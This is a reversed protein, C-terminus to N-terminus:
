REIEALGSANLPPSRMANRLQSALIPRGTSTMANRTAMRPFTIWTPNRKVTFGIVGSKERITGRNPRHSWRENTEGSARNLRAFDTTFIATMTTMAYRFMRASIGRRVRRAIDGKEQPTVRIACIAKRMM